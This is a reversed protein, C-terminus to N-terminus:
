PGKRRENKFVDRAPNLRSKGRRSGCFKMCINVNEQTDEGRAM